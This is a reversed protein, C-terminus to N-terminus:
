RHEKGQARDDFTAHGIWRSGELERRLLVALAEEPSFSIGHAKRAHRRVEAVQREETRAHLRYGCDCQIPKDDAM